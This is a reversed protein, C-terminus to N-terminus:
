SRRHLPSGPRTGPRCACPHCPAVTTPLRPRSSTPMPPACPLATACPPERWHRPLLRIVVLLGQRCHPCLQGAQLPPYASTHPPRERAPSELPAPPDQGALCLQLQHLLSRHVQSWLGYYRVKHFGAPLVHQLFRRIFELAPLTMTQWCHHRSDQYRFCVQGDEISLIRSNTLAIRHIYRGLYRLVQESGQVAPKCYVVWETGWVSEPIALDPREKRVLDLFLGRFLKSLAQVPVLYSPRAPRW